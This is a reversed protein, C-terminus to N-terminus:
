KSESRQCRFIIVLMLENTPINTPLFSFAARFGSTNENKPPFPSLSVDRLIPRGKLDLRLNRIEILM